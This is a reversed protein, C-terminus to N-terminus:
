LPSMTTYFTIPDRLEQVWTDYVVELIFDRTECKTAAFLQYDAIKAKHISKAKAQDVHNSNDPITEDCVAPNTPTPFKIWYRQKYGETDMFLVLLNHILKELDYPLPILTTTIDEHM